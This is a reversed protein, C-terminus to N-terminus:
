VALNTKLRLSDAKSPIFVFNGTFTNRAHYITVGPGSQNFSNALLLYIRIMSIM